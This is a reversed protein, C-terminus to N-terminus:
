KSSLVKLNFDGFVFGFDYRLFCGGLFSRKLFCFGKCSFGGFGVFVGCFVLWVVLDEYGVPPNLQSMVYQFVM